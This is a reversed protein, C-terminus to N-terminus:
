IFDLGMDHGNAQHMFVLFKNHGVERDSTSTSRMNPIEAECRLHDHWSIISQLDDGQFFDVKM